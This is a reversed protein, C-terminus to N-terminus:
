GVACRSSSSTFSGHEVVNIREGYEQKKESELKQYLSPLGRSQYSRAQPYFVRTDFFANCSDTWFGRVRIDARADPNNNATQHRFTEGTLLQLPPELEVDQHVEKMCQTLFTTPDNHRMHIFGSLKCTQAHDITFNAGCPCTPLLNDLPWCYRLHIHDHFDEFFFGHEAIPITTLTSSGGKECALEMARRQPDPLRSQISDAKEKLTTQHRAKIEAKAEQDLDGGAPLEIAEEVLFSTLTTTYELSDTHKTSSDAVPDDFSMGGNRAPLTVLEMELDNLEHKTLTPILTSCIANKLPYMHESTTLMTRQVFTWRHRLGFVFAAYATHPETSAVDALQNVQKRWCAVKEDLYAAVYNASGM